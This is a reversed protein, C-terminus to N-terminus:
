NLRDGRTIPFTSHLATNTLFEEYGTLQTPRLPASFFSVIASTKGIASQPEQNPPISPTLQTTPNQKDNAQKKKVLYNESAPM